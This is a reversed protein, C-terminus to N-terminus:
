ALFRPPPRPTSTLSLWDAVGGPTLGAAYGSGAYGAYVSAPHSSTRRLPSAGAPARTSQPSRTSAPSSVAPSSVAVPLNSCAVSLRQHPSPASGAAANVRPHTPQSNVSASAWSQRTAYLPSSPSEAMGSPIFLRAPEAHEPPPVPRQAGCSAAPPPSAAPLRDTVALAASIESGRELVLRLEQRTRSIAGSLADVEARMEKRLRDVSGAAAAAARARDARAEDITRVAETLDGELAAVERLLQKVAAEAAKGASESEKCSSRVSALERQMAEMWAVTQTHGTQLSMLAEMTEGERASAASVSRRCLEIQGRTDTEVSRRSDEEAAV